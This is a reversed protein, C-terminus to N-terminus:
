QGLFGGEGRFNIDTQDSYLNVTDGLNKKSIQSMERCREQLEQNCREQSTAENEEKVKVRGKGVVPTM